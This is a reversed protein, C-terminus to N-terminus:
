DEIIPADPRLTKSMDKSPKNSSSEVHVVNTVTESANPADNFVLYPKHPMFTGTYPPPIAHYRDGSKYRYNVLSKPVSDDSENSHLEKCDFVERNFVQSDYGLSTKDSIQSKLFKSLNKSSTQFKELTLKLENREKKAKKFKKRLEVLANERLMVDLKFLKIDDEFVTENKQYVVLRAEVSELCQSVLANSTFVEVSVIRRPTDKNRNDRPSRCERAFHGRRRARMTLMAMQWKLDIEELYDADIQKLDENELQPSNSQSAFFSYIVADSLSDVNPLTSVPATSSAASVSLVDNVSENTSDTNNSSVFTINQTNHSSTTSGKVEAEYIKLNNFLDDLSQEELGAKNRWILTHTEVRKEIVVMLSKADKHINFKLQHKDPLAIFLTGRVKLENKKAIRQEATTPAIVQVVGDIIRTLTPFDDNLIVEWLSYDTMLFYQEIRM